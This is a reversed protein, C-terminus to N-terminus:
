RPTGPDDYARALAYAHARVDDLSAEAVINILGDHSWEIRAMRDRTQRLM